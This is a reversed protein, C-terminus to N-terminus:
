NPLYGRRPDDRLRAYSVVRQVYSTTSAVAVAKDLESQDQAIGMLYVVQNVTIVSYNISRIGKTAILRTRVQTSIGVDRLYNWIGAKDNIQIDNMVEKVGGVLWALRVAEIQTETKDVNGTLLVRGEVVKIEVNALLDKYDQRAYMNKIQLLIGADDMANGVSREQAVVVATETGGAILATICGSLSASAMVLIALTLYKKM